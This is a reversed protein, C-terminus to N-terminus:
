KSHDGIPMKAAKTAPTAVENVGFIDVKNDITSAEDSDNLTVQNKLRKIYM